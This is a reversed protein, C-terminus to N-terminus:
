SGTSFISRLFRRAKFKFRKRLSAEDELIIPDGKANLGYRKVLHQLKSNIYRQDTADEFAVRFGMEKMYAQIVPRTSNDPGVAIGQHHTPSICGSEVTVFVAKKILEGASRLVQYDHGEADVKIEEIFEFRDPVAAIIRSLPVAPVEIAQYGGSPHKETPVHLSSTGFVKYQNKDGALQPDTLYFALPVPRDVNSVACRMLIFRADLACIDRKHHRIVRDNIILRKVEPYLDSGFILEQCCRPDPEIGISGRDRYLDLFWASHSAHTSLGVDIRVYKVSDPFVYKGGQLTKEPYVIDALDDRDVQTM